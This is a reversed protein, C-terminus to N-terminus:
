GKTKGLSPNKMWAKFSELQQQESKPDLPKNPPPPAEGSVLSTRPKAPGSEFGDKAGGGSRAAMPPAGAPAAAAPPAAAIPTGQASVTPPRATVYSQLWEIFEMLVPPAGPAARDTSYRQFADKVDQYLQEDLHGDPKTNHLLQHSKRLVQQLTGTFNKAAKDLGAVLQERKAALDAPEPLPEPVKQKSPQNPDAM